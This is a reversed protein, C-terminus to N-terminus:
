PLPERSSLADEETNSSMMKEKCSRSMAVQPRGSSGLVVNYTAILLIDELVAAARFRRRSGRGFTEDTLGDAGLGRTSKNEADIGERCSGCEVRM